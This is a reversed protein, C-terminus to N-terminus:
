PLRLTRLDRERMPAIRWYRDHAVLPRVWPLQRRATELAGSIVWVVNTQICREAKGCERRPKCGRRDRYSDNSRLNPDDFAVPSLRRAADKRIHSNSGARPATPSQGAIALGLQHSIMQRRLQEIGTISSRLELGALMRPVGASHLERIEEAFQRRPSLFVRRREALQQTEPISTDYGVGFKMAIVVDGRRAGDTFPRRAWGPAGQKRILEIVQGAV